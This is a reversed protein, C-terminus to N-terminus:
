SRSNSRLMICCFTCCCRLDVIINSCNQAIIEASEKRPKSAPTTRRHHNRHHHHQQQRTKSLVFSQRACLLRPIRDYTHKHNTTTPSSPHRTCCLPIMGPATFATTVQSVQYSLNTDLLCIIGTRLSQFSHLKESVRFYEFLSSM